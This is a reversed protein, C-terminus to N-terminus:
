PNMFRIWQSQSVVCNLVQRVAKQLEGLLRSLIHNLRLGTLVGTQGIRSQASTAYFNAPDVEEPMARLETIHADETAAENDFQAYILQLKVLLMDGYTTSCGTNEDFSIAWQVHRRMEAQTEIWEGCSALRDIVEDGLVMQASISSTGPYIKDLLEDERWEVLGAHIASEQEESVKRKKGQKLGPLKELEIVEMPFVRPECIHCCHTGTLEQYTTTTPYM